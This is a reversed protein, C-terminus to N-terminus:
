AGIEWGARAKLWAALRAEPDANSLVDSIVAISDAGAKAVAPAMDLTIGGIAVVPRKAIAKWERLKPLSDAVAAKDKSVTPFMPGLAVHHPDVALATELEERNTTSVGLKIGAKAIAKLDAGPLDEQGLHLWGAGFELALEWYDNVVCVAGAARCKDLSAKVEHRRLDLDETKTRIQVLKLGVPLLRDLWAAKDIVLYFRDLM